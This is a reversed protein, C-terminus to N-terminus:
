PAYVCIVNLVEVRTVLKTSMIGDSKHRVEIVQDVLEKDVLISVENRARTNKSYWLKSGDIERVKAGVWKTEQICNINVKRRHFAKVLEISKSMLTGTSLSAFCLSDLGIEKKVRKQGLPCAQVVGNSAM